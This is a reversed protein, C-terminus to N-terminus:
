TADGQISGATPTVFGHRAEALLQDADTRFRARLIADNLEEATILLVRSLQLLPAHAAIQDRPLRCVLTATVDGFHSSAQLAKTLAGRRDVLKGIKAMVDAVRITCEVIVLQGAPTAVILDPSDTELQVAPAFGLLFFLAAVASEFRFADGSDFLGQRIMRLDKDFQQVAVLRQNAAKAPDLVWQRRVTGSGIMLMVLASDSNACEVTVTGERRGNQVDGWEIRDAVQFRGRLGEGPMARVALGVLGLDCKPHAHLTLRLHNDSLQCKEFFLDVPPNIGITLASLRGPQPMPLALWLTLDALGDFPPVSARLLSDVQSLREAVGIPERGILEFYLPSFWSDRQPSSQVRYEGDGPLVLATGHLEIRGATANTVLTLLSEKSVANQQVQGAILGPLELRLTNDQVAPLPNLAISAALLDHNPDRVEALFRIDSTYDDCLWNRCAELFRRVM